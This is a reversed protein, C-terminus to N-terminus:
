YMGKRYMQNEKILQDNEVSIEKVTKYLMEIEPDKDDSHSPPISGGQIAIMEDIADRVSEKPSGMTARFLVRFKPFFKNGGEDYWVGNEKLIEAENEQVWNLRETDNM